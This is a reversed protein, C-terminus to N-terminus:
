RIRQYYLMKATGAEIIGAM